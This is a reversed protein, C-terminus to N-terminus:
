HELMWDLVANSVGLIHPETPGFSDDLWRGWENFGSAFVGAGSSAIFFTTHYREITGDTATIDSHFLVELGAPTRGNNEIRDGEISMTSTADSGLSLANKLTDPWALGGAALFARAHPGVASDSVVLPFSGYGHKFHMVGYLANEPRQHEWSRFLGTVLEPPGVYPDGGEKYCFVVGDDRTTVEGPATRVDWYANNGSLFMLHTGNSRLASVFSYESWTWYESHGIFIAARLPSAVDPHAAAIDADSAYTVDIGRKELWRAAALDNSYGGGYSYIGGGRNKYPREFSVSTGLRGSADRTYLSTGGFANYAQWTFQPVVALVAAERADTVVLPYSWTRGRTDTAKLLYIGSRWAADTPIVASRSWPCEFVGSTSPACPPQTGVAVSDASYRLRGGLGGYYGLRYLDLRVPGYRARIFVDLPQGARVTYPSAWVALDSDASWANPPSYWDRTGTAANESPVASSAAPLGRDLVVPQAAPTAWDIQCGAVLGLALFALVSFAKRSGRTLVSSLDERM